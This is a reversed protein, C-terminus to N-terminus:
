RLNAATQQLYLYWGTTANSLHIIIIVTTVAYSEPDPHTRVPIRIRRDHCIISVRFWLNVIKFHGKFTRKSLLMHCAESVNPKKLKPVSLASFPLPTIKPHISTTLCAM